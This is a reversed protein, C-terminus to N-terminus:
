DARLVLEVRRNRRRGEATANPAIPRHEGHSTLSIRAPDVGAKTLADVITLAREAGLLWNGNSYHADDTHGEVWVRLQPEARLWRALASLPRQTAAPLEADGPAFALLDDSFNVVLGDQTTSATAGTGALAATLSAPPPGVKTPPTTAEPTPAPPATTEVPQPELPPQPELSPQPERHDSIADATPVPRSAVRELLYDVQWARVVVLAALVLAAVTASVAVLRPGDLPQPSAPVLVGRVSLGTVTRLTAADLARIADATATNARLVLIGAQDDCSVLVARAGPCRLDPDAELRRHLGQLARVLDRTAHARNAPLPETLLVVTEPSAEAPAEPEPATATLPIGMVGAVSQCRSWPVQGAVFFLELLAADAGAYDLLPALWRSLQDTTADTVRLHEVKALREPVAPGLGRVLLARQAGPSM